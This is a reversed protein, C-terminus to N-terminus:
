EKKVYNYCARCFNRFKCKKWKPDKDSFISGIDGGSISGLISDVLAHLVVDADSHGKLSKYFKIDIGGLRIYNKKNNDFKHVDIGMASLQIYKKQNFM